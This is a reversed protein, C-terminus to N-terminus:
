FTSSLGQEQLLRSRPWPWDAHLQRRASAVRASCLCCDGHPQHAVTSSASSSASRKPPMVNSQISRNTVAITPMWHPSVEPKSCPAPQCVSLTLEKKFVKRSGARTWFPPKWSTSLLLPVTASGTRRLALSSSVKAASEGTRRPCALAEVLHRHVEHCAAAKGVKPPKLSCTDCRPWGLLQHRDSPLMPALIDPLNRLKMCEHGQGRLVQVVAAM